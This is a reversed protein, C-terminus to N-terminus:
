QVASYYHANALSQRTSCVAGDPRGDHQASTWMRTQKHLKVTVSNDVPWLKWHFIVFHGIWSPTLEM